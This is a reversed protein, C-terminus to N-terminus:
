GSLVLCLFFFQTFSGAYRVTKQKIKCRISKHIVDAILSVTWSFLNLCVTQMAPKRSLPLSSAFYIPGGAALPVIVFCVTRCVKEISCNSNVSETNQDVAKKYANKRERATDRLRVVTKVHLYKCVKKM